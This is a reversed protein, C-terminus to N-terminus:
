QSVDEGVSGFPSQITKGNEDVSSALRVTVEPVGLVQRVELAATKLITQIDLSERIRSTIEM